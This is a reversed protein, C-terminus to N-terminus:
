AFICNAGAAFGAFSVFVAGCILLAQISSHKPALCRGHIFRMGVYFKGVKTNQAEVKAEVFLEISDFLMCLHMCLEFDAMFQMAGRKLHKQPYFERIVRIACSREHEIYFTLCCKLEPM